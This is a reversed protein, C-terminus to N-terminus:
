LTSRTDNFPQGQTMLPNVQHGKSSRTDNFPQGPTMLLNTLRTDHNPLGPTATTKGGLSWKNLHGGQASQLKLLLYRAHACLRMQDTEDPKLKNELQM